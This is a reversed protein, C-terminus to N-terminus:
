IANYVAVAQAGHESSFLYNDSWEGASDVHRHSNVGAIQAGSTLTKVM